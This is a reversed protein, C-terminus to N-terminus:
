NKIEEEDKEDDSFGSLEAVTAAINNVEGKFILKIAEEPTPVGLHKLLDTDKLDPDVLGAAAIKANTAFSRGIEVNGKKDLGTASLEAFLDGDIATVKITAKEVKLVKALQKSAIERQEMKELERKDIEMLKQVLNVM